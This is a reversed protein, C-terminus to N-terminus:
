FLLLFSFSITQLSYIMSSRKNKLFYTIRLHTHSLYEMPDQILQHISIEMDQMHSLFNCLNIELIDNLIHYVQYQQIRNSFM